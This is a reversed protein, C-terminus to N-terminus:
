PGLVTETLIHTFDRARSMPNFVQCQWLTHRLDFIHRSDPTAMATAYAETAAGIWGKAQSNGYAAPAAMFFFLFENWLYRNPM